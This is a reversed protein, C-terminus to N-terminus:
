GGLLALPQPPAVPATRAGSGARDQSRISPLPPDARPGGAAGSEMVCQSGHAPNTRAARRKRGANPPRAAGGGKARPDLRWSESPTIIKRRNGCETEAARSEVSPTHRADMDDPIRANIDVDRRVFRRGRAPDRRNWRDLRLDAPVAGVRRDRQTAEADADSEETQDAVIEEAAEDVLRELPFADVDRTELEDFAFSRWHREDLVMRVAFAAEDMVKSRVGLEGHGICRE